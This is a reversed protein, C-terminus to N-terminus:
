APHGTAMVWILLGFCIALAALAVYASLLTRPGNHRSNYYHSLDYFQHQLDTM